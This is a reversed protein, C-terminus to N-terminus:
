WPITTGTHDRFCGSDGLTLDDLVRVMGAVSTDVDLPANEGGMDTRVWGPHLLMCAIGKPRLEKALNSVAMNLAAKSIRYSWAGGSDNDAISGMRSTLAGIKPPDGELKELFARTVRLPGVVNVEFVGHMDEWALGALDSGTQGSMGANNVLLHVPVPVAEAAIAVSADDSVDCAVSVLRDGYATALSALGDSKDPERSLAFVRDGQKLYSEAFGLGLGRSAGTIVINRM